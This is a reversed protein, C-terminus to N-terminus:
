KQRLLKKVLVSIKDAADGMRNSESEGSNLKKDLANKLEEKTLAHSFAGNEAIKMKGTEESVVVVFCDSEESIGLASRHRTGYKIDVNENNTLPVFNSASVIRDKSVIVAGDHLPSKKEFISLILEKSIISDMMVGRSIIHDLSISREFVILAGTKRDALFKCAESIIESSTKQNQSKSKNFMRSSRNIFKKIEDQFVVIFLILGNDLVFNLAKTTMQLQFQSSLKKLILLTFFFIVIRLIKTGKFVRYILILLLGIITADLGNAMLNTFDLNM